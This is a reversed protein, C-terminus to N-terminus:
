GGLEEEYGTALRGFDLRAGKWNGRGWGGVLCVEGTAMGLAVCSVCKSLSIDVQRWARLSTRRGM